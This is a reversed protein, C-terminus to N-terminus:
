KICSISTLPHHVCSCVIDAARELSMKGTYGNFKSSFSGLEVTSIIVDSSDVIKRNVHKGFLSLAEKSINYSLRGDSIDPWSTWYSSASSINIIHGRSMKKLWSLTLYVSSVYNTSLIEWADHSENLAVTNIVIDPTHDIVVRDCDHKSALDYEPRGIIEFEPCRSQIAAGLNSNGLIIREGM